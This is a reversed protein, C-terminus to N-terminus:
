MLYVLGFSSKKSSVRYFGLECLSIYFYYAYWINKSLLPNSLHPLVPKIQTQNNVTIDIAPLNFFVYICFMKRRNCSDLKKKYIYVIYIGVNLYNFIMNLEELMEVSVVNM